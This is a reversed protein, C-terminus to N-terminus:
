APKGPSGKSERSLDPSFVVVEGKGKVLFYLGIAVRELLWHFIDNQSLSSELCSLTKCRALYSPM